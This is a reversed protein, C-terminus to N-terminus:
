YDIPERQYRGNSLFYFDVEYEDDAADFFLLGDKGRLHFKERDQHSMFDDIKAARIFINGGNGHTSEDVVKGVYGQGNAAANLIILKHGRMKSEAPVLLAAYLPKGDSGFLGAAFGPCALPLEAKWREYARPNLGAEDQIKWAGYNRQIYEQVPQPIVTSACRGSDDSAESRSALSACCFVLVFSLYKLYQNM